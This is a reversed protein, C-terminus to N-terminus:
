YRVGSYMLSSRIDIAVFNYIKYKQYSTIEVMEVKIEVKLGGLGKPKLKYIIACIHM